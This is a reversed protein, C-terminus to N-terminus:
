SSSFSSSAANRLPLIKGEDPGGVVSDLGQEDESFFNETERLAGHLVIVGLAASLAVLLNNRAKTFFLAIVTSLLLAMMVVRDDIVRGCVMLPDDRLFYLFLWAAMMIIFVVLSMPQWLLSVFLIFLTIIAYNMRFFAANAKIRDVTQGFTSPLALYHPQIMEMWPRRTGLSAQIRQTAQSILELNSSPPAATPITGYTTM